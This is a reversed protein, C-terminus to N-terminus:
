RPIRIDSMKSPFIRRTVPPVPEKPWATTTFSALIDGEMKINVIQHNNVVNNSCLYISVAILGMRLPKSSARRREDPNLAGV